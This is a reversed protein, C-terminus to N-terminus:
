TILSCVLNINNTCKIPKEKKTIVMKIIAGDGM